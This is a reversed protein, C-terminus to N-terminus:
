TQSSHYASVVMYYPLKRYCVPVSGSWQGNAMCTITNPGPPTPSYGPHCRYARTSQFTTGSGSRLGNAPAAPPADCSVASHLSLNFHLVTTVKKTQLHSPCKHVYVLYCVIAIVVGNPSLLM